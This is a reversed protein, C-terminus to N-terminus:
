FRYRIEAGGERTSNRPELGAFGGGISQVDSDEIHWYHGWAGFAWHGREFMLYARYGRGKAQSNIVDNFGLGADSLRTKQRGRIFIDAEVTPALVLGGGLSVRATLGLPAYVYNSERRYGAAGTSSYGRLDDYLYRYGLGAYPSLSASRGLFYDRGAVVRAELINDPVDNQTGSGNSEYKLRGYSDRVDIRSFVRRANAFTYAGLIGGRAGSLKMIGPEEYRYHAAQVGLELGPRTALPEDAANSQRAGVALAAGLALAATTWAKM